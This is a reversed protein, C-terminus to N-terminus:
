YFLCAYSFFILKGINPSSFVGLAHTDDVWKIEFNKYASFVNMLDPTKFEAPFDYIELIHSLADDSPIYNNSGYDNTAKCISVQGLNTTM